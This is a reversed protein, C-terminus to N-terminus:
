SAGGDTEGRALALVVYIEALVRRTKATHGKQDMIASLENAAIGLTDYMRPAAKILPKDRKTTGECVVYGGYDGICDGAHAMADPHKSIIADGAHPSDVWPGPTHTM